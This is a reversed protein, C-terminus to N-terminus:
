TRGWVFGEPIPEFHGKAAEEATLQEMTTFGEFAIEAVPCYFDQQLTRQWHELRGGYDKSMLNM